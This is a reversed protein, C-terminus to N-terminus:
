RASTTRTPVRAAALQRREARASLLISVEYLLFLPLSVLIQSTVDPPTIIAALILIAVFAHKRYTRLFSPGVLGIRTLFLIVLPLQFVVGTWLTMSTVTGIFSDLNIENSVANGTGVRYSGLFQISMPTLVFYGFAVGLLFLFAMAWVIGGVASRERPNLGPSIFRWLQWLVFPMALIFGAVFSVMLDAMFQGGMTQNQFTFGVDRICMADGAGALHGLRCMVRYTIFDARQPALIVHDFLLTSFAFALIMGAVVAIASRVLAWRLEELHQLFSMEKGDTSM